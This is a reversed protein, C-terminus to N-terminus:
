LKIKHKERISSHEKDNQINTTLIETGNAFSKVVNKANTKRM